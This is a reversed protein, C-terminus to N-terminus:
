GERIKTLKGSGSIGESNLIDAMDVHQVINKELM